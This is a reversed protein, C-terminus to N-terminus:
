GNITRASKEKFFVPEVLLLGFFFGAGMLATFLLVIFQVLEGEGVGSLVLVVPVSGALVVGLRDVALRRIESSEPHILNQYLDKSVASGAVILLSDVTSMM